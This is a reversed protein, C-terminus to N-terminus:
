ERKIYFYESSNCRLYKTEYRGIPAGAMIHITRHFKIGEQCLFEDIKKESIDLEKIMCNRVDPIESWSTPKIRNNEICQHMVKRTKEEENM